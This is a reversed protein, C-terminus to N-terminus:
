NGALRPESMAEIAPGLLVRPQTINVQGCISVAVETTLWSDM